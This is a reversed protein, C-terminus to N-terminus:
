QTRAADRAKLREILDKHEEVCLDLAERGQRQAEDFKEWYQLKERLLDIEEILLKRNYGLTIEVIPYPTNEFIEGGDDRVYGERIADGVLQVEVPLLEGCHPCRAERIVNISEPM